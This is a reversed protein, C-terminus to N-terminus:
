DKPALAVPFPARMVDHNRNTGGLSGDAKIYSDEAWGWEGEIIGPVIRYVSVAVRDNSKCTWLLFVSGDERIEGIADWLEGDLRLQRGSQMLKGHRTDGAINPVQPPANQQPALSERIPAAAFHYAPGEAQTRESVKPLAAIRTLQETKVESSGPLGIWRGVISKGKHEYVTVGLGAGSKWAVSFKEGDVIGIGISQGFAPGNDADRFTSWQVYHADGSRSIMCVGVYEAGTETGSVRWIGEFKSPPPKEGAGLPEFAVPVEFADGKPEPPEDGIDGAKHPSFLKACCDPVLVTGFVAGRCVAVDGRREVVYLTSKPNLQGFKRSWKIQGTNWALDTQPRYWHHLKLGDKHPPAPKCCDPEVPKKKDKDICCDPSEKCFQRYAVFGLGALNLLLAAMLSGFLFRQM